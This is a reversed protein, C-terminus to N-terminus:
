QAAGVKPRWQEFRRELLDLVAVTSLGAIMFM